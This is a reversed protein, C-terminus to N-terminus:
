CYPNAFPRLRFYYYHLSKTYHLTTYHTYNLHTNPSFSSRGQIAQEGQCSVHCAWHKHKHKHMSLGLCSFSFSPPSLCALAVLFSLSLSNALAFFTLIWAM